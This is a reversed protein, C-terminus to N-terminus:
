SPASSPSSGSAAIEAPKALRRPSMGIPSQWRLFEELVQLWNIRGARLDDFQDGHTLLAWVCGAIAKRPENQGGSITLRVNARVQQEPLGGHLMVSLLSHNPKHRVVPLIDDIAADIGATAAHCRQEVAPDGAYNAVGEIMAQSWADMEAATINTLGTMEKLCEGSFPLAFEEVLDACGKPILADLLRDCHAQFRSTWVDAVARANVAQFYVKREAMHAAGDKRMMNQGMLRNMLGGPQDSSFTGIEKEWHFVDDRRTLLVAGLQPAFAVPAERRLRAYTPYPDAWFKELDIDFHPVAPVTGEGTLRRLIIIYRSPSGRLNEAGVTRGGCRCADGAGACDPVLHHRVAALRRRLALRLLDGCDRRRGARRRSGDADATDGRWAAPRDASRDLLPLSLVPIATLCVLSNAGMLRATWTSTQPMALDAAIGAVLLGAPIALLWAAKRAPTGPRVLRMALAVSAVTLALTVVFKLMFFPNAMAPRVDARMGLGMMFMTATFPLAVALAVALVVGVPRARSGHDAALSRILENTEM